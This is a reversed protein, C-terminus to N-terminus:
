KTESFIDLEAKRRTPYKKAQSFLDDYWVDGRRIFTIYRGNETHLLDDYEIAM